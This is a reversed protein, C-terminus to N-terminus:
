AIIWSVLATKNESSFPGSCKQAASGHPQRIEFQEFLQALKRGFGHEKTMTSVAEVLSEPGVSVHEFLSNHDAIDDVIHDARFVVRMDVDRALEELFFLEAYGTFGAVPARNTSLHM